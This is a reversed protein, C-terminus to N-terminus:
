PPLSGFRFSRRCASQAQGGQMRSGSNAAEPLSQPHTELARWIPNSLANTPAEPANRKGRQM